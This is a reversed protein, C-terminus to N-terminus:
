GTMQAVLGGTPSAFQDVSVRKGPKTVKSMDEQKQISKKDRWKRRKARAYVCAACTPPEVKALRAPIVGKKAMEKLRSFPLHNFNWHMKMLYMANNNTEANGLENHTILQGDPDKADLNFNRQTDQPADKHKLVSIPHQMPTNTSAAPTHDELQENWKVKNASARKFDRASDEGAFESYHEQLLQPEPPGVQARCALICDRDAETEQCFLEFCHIGPASHLTAM